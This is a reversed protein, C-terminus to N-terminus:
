NKPLPKIRADSFPNADGLGDFTLEQLKALTESLAAESPQDGVFLTYHSGESGAGIEALTVNYGQSKLETGLKKALELDESNFKSSVVCYRSNDVRPIDGACNYSFVFVAIATFMLVAIKNVNIKPSIAADSPAVVSKRQSSSGQTSGNRSEKDRLIDLLHLKKPAM